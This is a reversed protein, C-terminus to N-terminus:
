GESGTGHYHGPSKLRKEKVTLPTLSQWSDALPSLPITCFDLAERGPELHQM